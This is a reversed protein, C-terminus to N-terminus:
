EIRDSDSAFVAPVGDRDVLSVAAIQAIVNYEFM